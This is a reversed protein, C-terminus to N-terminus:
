RHGGSRDIGADADAMDMEFHGIEIAREAEIAAHQTELQRLAQRLLRGEDGGAAIMMVDPEIGPLAAATRRWRM